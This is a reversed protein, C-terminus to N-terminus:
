MDNGGLSANHLDPLFKAMFSPSWKVLMSELIQVSFEVHFKNETVDLFTVFFMKSLRGDAFESFWESQHWFSNGFKEVLIGCFFCSSNWFLRAGRQEPTDAFIGWSLNYYFDLFSIGFFYEPLNSSYTWALPHRSRYIIYYIERVENPMSYRRAQWVISM